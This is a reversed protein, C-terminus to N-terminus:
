VNFTKELIQLVIVTMDDKPIGDQNIKALNLLYEGLSEPGVVEV